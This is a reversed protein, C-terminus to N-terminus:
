GAYEVVFVPEIDAALRFLECEEARVDQILLDIDDMEVAVADYGADIALIQRIAAIDLRHRARGRRGSPFQCEEFLHESIHPSEVLGAAAARGFGLRLRWTGVGVPVISPQGRRQPLPCGEDM